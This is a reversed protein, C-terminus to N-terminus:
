GIARITLKTKVRKAPHPLPQTLDKFQGSNLAHNLLVHFSSLWSKPIKYQPQLKYQLQVTPQSEHNYCYILDNVSYSLSGNSDLFSMFFDKIQYCFKEWSHRELKSQTHFQTDSLSYWLGQKMNSTKSITMCPVQLRNIM